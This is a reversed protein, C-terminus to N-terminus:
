ATRMRFLRSDLLQTVRELVAKDFLIQAESVSVPLLYQFLIELVIPLDAYTAISLPESHGLIM